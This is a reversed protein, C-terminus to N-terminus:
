DFNQDVTKALARVFRDDLHKNDRYVPTGDKLIAYCVNQPCVYKNFDHLTVNTMNRAALELLNTVKRFEYNELVTSCNRRAVEIDESSYRKLCSPGDFGLPPTPAFVILSTGDGFERWFRLSGNLWQEDTFGYMAASGIYVVKPSISNVYRVVKEKWRDCEEYWKKIKKYYYRESLLPCASKTLVIVQWGKRSYIIELLSVWQAGISDGILVVINESGEPGVSCPILRSDSYWTDCGDYYIQPYALDRQKETKVTIRLLHFSIAFLFMMGFLGVLLNNKKSWDLFGGRRFPLEVYRYSLFSLFFIIIMSLSPSNHIIPLVREKALVYVPWHWLYISYSRDGIWVLPKFELPNYNKPLLAGSFIILVTASTPLLAWLGPYPFNENIFGYSCVLLIAGLIFTVLGVEVYRNRSPTPTLTEILIFFLGGACFQWARAPMLYFSLLANNSMGYVSFYLSVFMLTFLLFFLILIKNKIKVLGFRHRGFSIVLLFPWVLYFQEEVGLSWTHLFIDLGQRDDFYDLGRFAFYNNSLWLPVYISSGTLSQAEHVPLLLYVVTCTLVCFVCLVPFLRRMRRAYFDMIDMYGKRIYETVLLGTIVYGSIVFFVDVGVFGGQFYPINFHNFVVGLVALARLGQIDGRFQFGPSVSTM